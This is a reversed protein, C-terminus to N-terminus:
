LYTFDLIMISENWKMYTRLYIILIIGWSGTSLGNIEQFCNHFYILAYAAQARLGLLSQLWYGDIRKKGGLLPVCKTLCFCVWFGLIYLLCSCPQKLSIFCHQHQFSQVTLAESCLHLATGMSAGARLWTLGLGGAKTHSAFLARHPEWSWSSPQLLGLSCGHCMGGEGLFPKVLAGTLHPQKSTLGEKHVPKLM